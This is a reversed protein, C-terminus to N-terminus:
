YISDTEWDIKFGYREELVDMHHREHGAMIWPIASLSVPRDDCIGVRSIVSPDLSKLIYLHNTKAVHHERWLAAIPRSGANSAAAWMDEDVGPQTQKEGRGIWLARFIFVREMDVIHGVIDKVSWKGPAYRYDAQEETLGRLFKLMVLGQAKMLALVDTAAPDVKDLYKQYYEAYDGPVPKAYLPM